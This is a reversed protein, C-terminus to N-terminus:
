LAIYVTANIYTWTHLAIPSALKFIGGTKNSNFCATCQHSKICNQDRPSTIIEIYKLNNEIEADNVRFFQLKM